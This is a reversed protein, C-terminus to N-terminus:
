RSWVTLAKVLEETMDLRANDSLSGATLVMQFPGVPDIHIRGAFLHLYSIVVCQLTPPVKDFARISNPKPPSMGYLDLWEDITRCLVRHTDTPNSSIPVSM